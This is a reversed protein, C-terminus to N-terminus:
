KGTLIRIILLFYQEFLTKLDLCIHEKECFFVTTQFERKSNSLMIFITRKWTCEEVKTIQECGEQERNNKGKRKKIEALKQHIFCCFVFFTERLHKIFSLKM